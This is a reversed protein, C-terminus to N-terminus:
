MHSKFINKYAKIGVHPDMCWLLHDTKTTGKLAGEGANEGHIRVLDQDELLIEIQTICVHPSPYPWLVDRFHHKHYHLM